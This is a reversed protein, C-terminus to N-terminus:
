DIFTDLFDHVSQTDVRYTLDLNKCPADGTSTVSVIKGDVFHPGGSDGYCTGGNGVAPNMSLNLASRTHSLYTQSAYRRVTNTFDIAWNGGQLWGERVSGYGATTFVTSGLARDAKLQELTGVPALEAPTIGVPEDELIVVGVDGTDGGRSAGWRPHVVVSEAWIVDATNGDQRLETIDPEFTVGYGVIEWDAPIPADICHAATLFVKKDILTGTCAVFPFTDGEIKIELVLAGVNSYNNATDVEGYTIATASAATLGAAILASAVVTATRKM